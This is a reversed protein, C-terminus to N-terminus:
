AARRTARGPEVSGFTRGDSELVAADGTFREWRRVAIDVYIPALEVARCVRDHRHAAIITTGSGSFPEFVMDGTDSFATLMESALDVPFVAPHALRDGGKGHKHRMVRVVSDPIKRPQLGAAVNSRRGVTGDKRRMGGRAGARTMVAVNEPMKEKTKRVRDAVRNFHFIFEHAPALRGNWDGPMGPGQDWVYWGFRRWGGARMWEVWPEWYPVVENNKHILGLNVLVQAERKVPLVGFVGKMLVLWDAIGAEYDRQQGYPPSTFCLDAVDGAMLRQITAPDTSDGCALRHRGLVWVDGPASVPIPPAEPIEDADTREGGFGGIISSLELPAFGTLTVDFGGLKLEGLEIKLLSSDWGSNLAIKNDAIMYARKQAESWGRAIIVPVQALGLQKAALVRGHGAIIEDHEDVLVPTTWGWERIAAAIQGVQDDSHTRANRASPVLSEVARREVRDAPWQPGPQGEPASTAARRPKRATAAPM